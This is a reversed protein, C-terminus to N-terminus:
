KLAPSLNSYTGVSQVLECSIWDQLDIDNSDISNFDNSFSSTSRKLESASLSVGCHVVNMSFHLHSFKTAGKEETCLGGIFDSVLTEVKNGALYQSRKSRRKRTVQLDMEEFPITGCLLTSPGM